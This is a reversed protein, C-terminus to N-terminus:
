RATLPALLDALRDPACVFPSHDTDVDLVDACREAQQDQGPVSM